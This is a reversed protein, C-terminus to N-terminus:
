VEDCRVPLKLRDDSYTEPFVMYIALLPAFFAMGLPILIVAMIKGLTPSIAKELRQPVIHIEIEWLRRLLSKKNQKELEKRFKRCAFGPVTRKLELIQGFSDFPFTEFAFDSMYAKSLPNEYEIKGWARSRWAYLGWVALAFVFYVHLIMGPTGHLAVAGAAMGIIAALSLSQRISRRKIFVHDIEADSALLLRYRNLLKWGFRSHFACKFPFDEYLELMWYDLQRILDDNTGKLIERYLEVFERPNILEDMLNEINLRLRDRAERDIM